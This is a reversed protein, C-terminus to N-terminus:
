RHVRLMLALGFIGFIINAFWAALGPPLVRNEGIAKGVSIIGWFLFCIFLSLAFGIAKESKSTELAFPIGMIMVILCSFPFSLKSHLAVKESVAPIGNKTLKAIYDKLELYNMEKPKKQKRCFHDLREPFYFVKEEFNEESITGRRNYDFQRIIGEYFIWYGDKWIARKAHVQNVIAFNKNFQDVSVGLLLNKKGDLHKITYMRGEEGAIVLDDQRQYDRITRKLVKANYVYDVKENAYPVVVESLFFTGLVLFFCIVILPSIIRYLSVGSAKMATLENHRSLGGLSFLTALLIAVPFIQILWEPMRWFLYEACVPLPTKLDIWKHLQFFLESIILLSTFAVLGLFLPRIFENIIYHTLIRM